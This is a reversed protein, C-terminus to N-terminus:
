LRHDARRGQLNCVWAATWGRDITEASLALSCGTFGGSAAASLVVV